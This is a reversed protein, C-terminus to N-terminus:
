RFIIQTYIHTSRMSINRSKHDTNQMIKNTLDSTIRYGNCFSIASLLLIPLPLYRHHYSSPPALKHNHAAATNTM